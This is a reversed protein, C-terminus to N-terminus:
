RILKPFHRGSDGAGDGNGRPGDGRPCDRRPGWGGIGITMGNHLQGVM